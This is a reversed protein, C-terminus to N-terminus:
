GLLVVSGPTTPAHVRKLSTPVDARFRRTISDVGYSHHSGATPHRVNAAHQQEERGIMLIFSCQVVRECPAGTPQLVPPWGARSNRSMRSSATVVAVPHVRGRAPKAGIADHLDKEVIALCTILARLATVAIVAFHAVPFYDPLHRWAPRCQIGRPVPM